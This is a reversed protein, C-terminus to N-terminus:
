EFEVNTFAGKWHIPYKLQKWDFFAGGDIKDRGLNCEKIIHVPYYFGM